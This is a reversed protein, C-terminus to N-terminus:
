KKQLAVHPLSEYSEFLGQLFSNHGEGHQPSFGLAQEFVLVIDPVNLVGGKKMWKLIPKLPEKIDEYNDQEDEHRPIPDIRRLDM